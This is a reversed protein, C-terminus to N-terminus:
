NTFGLGETMLGNITKLIMAIDDLMGGLTERIEQYLGITALSILSILLALEIAAAGSDDRLLRRLGTFISERTMDRADM